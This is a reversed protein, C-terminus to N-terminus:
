RPLLRFGGLSRIASTVATEVYGAPAQPSWGANLKLIYPLNNSIWLSDRIKVAAIVGRGEALAVSGDRDIPDGATITPYGITDRRPANLGVFWNSRARGTDVPTAPVVSALVALGATRTAKAANTEVTNALFLMRKAFQAPTAM